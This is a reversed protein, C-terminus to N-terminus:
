KFDWIILTRNVMNCSRTVRRTFVAEASIGILTHAVLVIATHRAVFVECTHGNLEHHNKNMNLRCENVCVCVCVCM